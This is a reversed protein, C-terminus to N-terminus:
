LAPVPKLDFDRNQSRLYLPQAYKASFPQFFLVLSPSDEPIYTVGTFNVLARLDRRVGKSCQSQPKSSRPRFTSVIFLRDQLDQM